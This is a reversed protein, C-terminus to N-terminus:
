AGASKAAPCYRAIIERVEDGQVVEVEQLRAALAEIAAWIQPDDLMRKTADLVGDRYFEEATFVVEFHQNIQAVFREVLLQDYSRDDGTMYSTEQEQKYGAKVQALEGAHTATIFGAIKTVTAPTRGEIEFQGRVIGRVWSHQGDNYIPLATCFEVNIGALENFVAHAAEHYSTSKREHPTTESILRNRVEETNPLQMWQDDVQQDTM